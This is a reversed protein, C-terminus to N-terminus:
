ARAEQRAVFVNANIVLSSPRDVCEVTVSFGLEELDGILERGFIRYALVGGTLPDGHYQAPHLFIDVDSSTDVLTINKEEADSYPATFIYTGGPRLIRHIESHAADSDRVHEMVDSTLVVDFSADDFDIRELDINFYNPSLASGWPRDPLYSCRVYSVDDGLLRSMASFNDTDLVRVDGLGAAALAAISAHRMSTRRYIEDLFSIALSRARMSAFCRRCQLTERLEGVKHERRLPLDPFDYLPTTRNGCVPCDFAYRRYTLYNGVNQRNIRAPLDRPARMLQQAIRAFMRRDSDMPLASLSLTRLISRGTM